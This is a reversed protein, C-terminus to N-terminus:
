STQLDNPFFFEGPDAHTELPVFDAAQAFEFKRFGAASATIYPADLAALGVLIRSFGITPSARSSGMRVLNLGGSM